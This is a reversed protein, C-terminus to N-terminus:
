SIVYYEDQKGLKNRKRVTTYQIYDGLEKAKATKGLGLEDYVGQLRIKVVKRSLEEGSKFVKKCSETIQPFNLIKTEDYNIAELKEFGIKRYAEKFEIDIHSNALVLTEYQPYADLFDAYIKLKMSFSSASYFAAEFQRLIDPKTGYQKRMMKQVGSLLRIPNNYYFNKLMWLNHKAAIKLNNIFMDNKGGNDILAIYSDCHNCYRKALDFKKKAIEGNAANHYENVLLEEPGIEENLKQIFEYESIVEETPKTRYFITAEHRFPNTDLRQRGLIQPIDIDIDLTQWDKTGDIFIYTFACNSNFDRGEFSAKTCFTFPKNRLLPNKIFDEKPLEPENIIFGKKELERAHKNSNSILIRVDDPKLNAEDIIEQITTVQNLYFVAEESHVERGEWIKREFYRNSKPKALFDQIIEICKSKTDQQKLCYERVTPETIVSRDWELKYYDTDQFEPLYQLYTEQIPTASLYCINKARQNINILFEYDVDGKFMSDSELNQFEDVVFTYLDISKRKELVDLVYHASDLTVLIKPFIPRGDESFPNGCCRDLYQVLDDILLGVDANTDDPNRFLHSNPTDRHKGPLMNSRPSVLVIPKDSKLFYTTGGCGTLTKNLVYKGTTPLEQELFGRADTFYQIGQPM